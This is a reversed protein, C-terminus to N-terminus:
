GGGRGRGGRAPVAFGGFVPSSPEYRGELVAELYRGANRIYEQTDAAAAKITPLVSKAQDGLFTLANLAPLKVPWPDSSSVIAALANVAEPSPAMTALAEAAVVRNQAASTPDTKAV